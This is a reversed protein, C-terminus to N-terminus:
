QAEVETHSYGIFHLQEVVLSVLGSLDAVEDLDRVVVIRMSQRKYGDYRTSATKTFLLPHFCDAVRPVM